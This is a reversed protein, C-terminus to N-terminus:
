EYSFVISIEGAYIGNKQDAITSLTAGIKVTADGSGDLSASLGTTVPVAAEVGAVGVKATFLSMEMKATADSDGSITLATTQAVTIKFNENNAGTIVIEGPTGAADIAQALGSNVFSGDAALMKVTGVGTVSLNGFGMASTSSIAIPAVITASAAMTSTVNVQANLSYVFGSILTFVLLKKLKNM